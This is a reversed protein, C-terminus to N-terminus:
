SLVEGTVPETPPSTPETTAPPDTVVPQEEGGGNGGENSQNGTEGETPDPTVIDTVPPAQTDPEDIIPTDTQGGSTVPETVVPKTTEPAKSNNSSSSSSSSSSSTKGRYIDILSIRDEELKINSTGYLENQLKQAALQYDVVWIWANASGSTRCEEDPMQLQTREYNFWKGSIANVGLSIIETKKFGTAIYPLFVDIYKNIDSLSATKVRDIIADIVQRQRRTRSVDGDADCGRIRCFCLAQEGNLTVDDGYPLTVGFKTYNYDAEYKKVDVTVGGMEDVIAAFSDFNVMVYNDIEIKYNNEITEVLVQPGGMSFAANLKTCFANSKGQIYLYSDRLFSVMKLQKTKKNLSVLMMVDTNGEYVGKESDVGVLLVNIVNKSHMKEDNGSVAWNKLADKFGQSGIDINIDDFHEDSYIMNDYQSDDINGGILSFKQAVFVGAVSGLVILISLLICLICFLAKKPKSLDNFWVKLSRRKKVNEVVEGNVKLPPPSPIEEDILIVEEPLEEEFEEVIEDDKIELSEDEGYQSLIDIYNQMDDDFRKNDSM